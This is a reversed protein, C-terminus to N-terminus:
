RVQPSASEVACHTAFFAKVQADSEERSLQHRLQVLGALTPISGQVKALEEPSIRNWVAHAAGILSKWKLKMAREAAFLSATSQKKSPAPRASPKPPATHEISDTPTNM